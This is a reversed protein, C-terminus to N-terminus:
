GRNRLQRSCETCLEVNMMKQVHTLEAKCRLCVGTFKNPMKEIELPPLEVVAPTTPAFTKRREAAAQTIQKYEDRELDGDLWKEAALKTLTDLEATDEASLVGELLRDLM